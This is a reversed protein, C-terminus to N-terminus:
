GKRRKKRSGPLQVAQRLEPGLEPWGAAPLAQLRGSSLHPLAAALAQMRAQPSYCSAAAMFHEVQPCPPRSTYGQHTFPPSTNPDIPM